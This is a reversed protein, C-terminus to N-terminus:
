VSTGKPTSIAKKNNLSIGLTLLIIPIIIAKTPSKIKNPEGLRSPFDIPIKNNSEPAKAHDKPITIALGSLLFIPPNATVAQTPKNQPGISKIPDKIKSPFM